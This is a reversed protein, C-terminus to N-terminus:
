GWSSDYNRDLKVFALLHRFKRWDDDNEPHEYIATLGEFGPKVSVFVNYRPLITTRSVSKMWLGERYASLQMGHTNFIFSRVKNKKLMGGAEVCDDEFEKTKYDIIAIGPCFRDIKGGYGLPHCFSHEACWNLNSGFHTDLTDMVRSVVPDDDLTGPTDYAELRAHMATGNTIRKDREQSLIDRMTQEYEEDCMGEQQPNERFVRYVEEKQWRILNPAAAANLISTTGYCAGRERADRITPNKLGEGSKKPIRGLQSGDKLYWHGSESAHKSM